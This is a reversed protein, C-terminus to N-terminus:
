GTKSRQVGISVAVLTGSEARYNIVVLDGRRLRSLEVPAGDKVIKTEEDVKLTMRRNHLDGIGSSDAVTVTLENASTDVSVVEAQVIEVPDSGGAAAAVVAPIVLAALLIRLPMRRENM